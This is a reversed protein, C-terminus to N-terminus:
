QERGYEEAIKRVLRITDAESLAVQRIDDLARRYRSIVADDEFFLGGTFSEVFVVPPEATRSARQTPFSLLTFSQVLLGAHAGADFPIARVSVNARTAIEAIHWLQEAMVARGGIQHRLASESLLVELQFDPCESLKRQRTALLQLHRQAEAESILPDTTDIIWRRYRTTHLLGPVLTLQFSTIRASAQELSMYHNFHPNVVDAYARWWGSSADGKAAKVEKLLGLVEDKTEADVAYFDLLERFQATSIRVIQGEELRGIGQKSIEIALGAALQSKGAATRLERMRRGLARRPLTSGGAM